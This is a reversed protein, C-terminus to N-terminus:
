KPTASVAFVIISIVPILLMAAIFLQTSKIAREHEKDEVLDKETQVHPLNEDHDSMPVTGGFM